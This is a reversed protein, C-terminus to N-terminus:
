LRCIRVSFGHTPPEIGGRGMQLEMDKLYKYRSSDQGTADGIDRCCKQLLDQRIQTLEIV